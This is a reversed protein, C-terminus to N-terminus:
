FWVILIILTIFFNDNFTQFSKLNKIVMENEDKFNSIKERKKDNQIRKLIKEEVREPINNM